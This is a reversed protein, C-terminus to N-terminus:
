ESFGTPRGDISQQNAARRYEELGDSGTHQAWKLLTDREGVFEYVPIAYGCATQVSEIHLVIIQREGAISSFHTHLKQGAESSIPMVEGRGYLRLVLPKGELACFMITMRGDDKLHAATENGSGTLDLYAVTLDDIVRFTNMGKPSLNIRGDTPTTATFFLHQRAIFERLTPNLEDYFQAM